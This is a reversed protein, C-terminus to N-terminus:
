MQSQDSIKYLKLCKIHKVDTLWVKGHLDVIFDCVMHKIKITPYIQQLFALLGELMTEINKDSIHTINQQYINSKNDNGLLILYQDDLNNRLKSRKLKQHYERSSAVPISDSATEVFSAGKKFDLSFKIRKSTSNEAKQVKLPSPM